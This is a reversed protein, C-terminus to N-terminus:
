KGLLRRAEEEADQWAPTNAAEARRAAEEFTPAKMGGLIERIRAAREEIPLDHLATVQEELTLGNETM